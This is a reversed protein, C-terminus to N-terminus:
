SADVKRTSAWERMNTVSGGANTIRDHADQFVDIVSRRIGELDNDLLFLARRGAGGRGASRLPQVPINAGTILDALDVGLAHAIASLEDIDFPEMATTRRSMKSQSMGIQRALAAASLGAAAYHARVATAVRVRDDVEPEESVTNTSM